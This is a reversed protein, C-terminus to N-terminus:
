DGLLYTLAFRGNGSFDSVMADYPVLLGIASYGVATDIALVAVQLM